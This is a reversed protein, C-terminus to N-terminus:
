VFDSLHVADEKEELQVIIGSDSAHDYAENGEPDAVGLSHLQFVDKVHKRDFNLIFAPLAQAEQVILLEDFADMGNEKIKRMPMGNQKTVIYHSTFGNKLAAGRFSNKDKM